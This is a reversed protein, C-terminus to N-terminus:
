FPYKHSIKKANIASFPEDLRKCEGVYQVRYHNNKETYSSGQMLKQAQASSSARQLQISDGGKYNKVYCKYDFMTQAYGNTVSLMFLIFLLRNKNLIKMM